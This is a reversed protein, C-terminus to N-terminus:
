PRRADAQLGAWEIWWSLPLDNVIPDLVEHERVDAGERLSRSSEFWGCGAPELIQQVPAKQACAPSELAHDAPALHPLDASQDSLGSQAAQMAGLTHVTHAARRRWGSRM